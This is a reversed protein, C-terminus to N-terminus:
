VREGQRCVMVAEEKEKSSAATDRGAGVRGRSPSGVGVAPGYGLAQRCGSRGAGRRRDRCHPHRGRSAGGRLRVREAIELYAPEQEKM